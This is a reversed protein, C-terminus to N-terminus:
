LENEPTPMVMANEISEWIDRSVRVASEKCQVILECIYFYDSLAQIESESLNILEPDLGLGEHWVQMMRNAFDRHVEIPQETNPVQYQLVELEQILVPLNAFDNFINAYVLDCAFKRARTLERAHDLNHARVRILNHGLNRAHDLVRVIDLDLRSGAYVSKHEFVRIIEIRIPNLKLAFIIALVRKAPAPNASGGTILDAWTLLASLKSSCIKQQAIRIMQKLLSNANPLLGPLLLFVERWRQATLYSSFTETLATPNQSLYQATLYEQVTLHSFSYIDEARETLIGQQVAIATLVAKGDLYKPKDASDELFNQIHSILEERTFFLRDEIFGQYAIEALLVKELETNLGEYIPEHRIRKEAAWEELLIDLAKRYLSARNAPFSQTRDYVVCLFTLLLPTQALEKASQYSANNLLNWCKEATNSSVDLAGQFWNHIFQQIQEDDFDALEIDTFGTFGSRFAAIRCSAIFRNGQYKNNYRSVFDQIAQCVRDQNAKPVEDLGDLLVLLKGQKLAEEVFEASFDFGVHSFEEAIVAKIDIQGSDFRKLELMVPICEHQFQSEKVRLAELGVWRLYTSKGAGPGGLVMLLRHNNAVVMGDQPLCDQQRFQRPKERFGQELAEISAFRGISLGDLFRVGTYIQELPVAERMGSLTLKVKGYRDIYRREYESWLDVETLRDKIVKITQGALKEIISTGVKSIASGGARGVMDSMFPDM